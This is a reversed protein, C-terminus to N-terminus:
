DRPPQGKFLEHYHKEVRGCIDKPIDKRKDRFMADLVRRVDEALCEKRWRMAMKEYASLGKRLGDLCGRYGPHLPALLTQCVSLGAFAREFDERTKLNAWNCETLFFRAEGKISEDAALKELAVHLPDLDLAYRRSRKRM